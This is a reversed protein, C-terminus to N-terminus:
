LQMNNLINFSDIMKIEQHLLLHKKRDEPLPWKTIIMQKLM